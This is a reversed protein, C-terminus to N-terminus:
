IAQGRGKVCCFDIGVMQRGRPGICKQDPCEGSEIKTVMTLKPM